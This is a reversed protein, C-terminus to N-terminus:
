IVENQYEKWRIFIIRRWRLNESVQDIASVCVEPFVWVELSMHTVEWWFLRAGSLVRELRRTYVFVM